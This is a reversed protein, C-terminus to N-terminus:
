FRFNNIKIVRFIILVISSLNEDKFLKSILPWCHVSLGTSVCRTGYYNENQRAKGRKTKRVAGSLSKQRVRPGLGRMLIREGVDSVAFSNGTKPNFHKRVFRLCSYVYTVQLVNSVIRSSVCTYSTKVPKKQKTKYIIKNKDKKKKRGNDYLYFPQYRFQDCFENKFRTTM